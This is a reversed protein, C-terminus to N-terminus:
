ATRPELLVIPIVRPHARERFTSYGPYFADFQPWLREREAETALRARVERVEAGVQVTTEPNAMLNHFWAPNTPQGAKSAVVALSAGDRHYMLPSTRDAGSKAGRHDVLAVKADPWGPLNGGIRGGSRRYLAVHVKTSRRGLYIGRDNMAEAAALNFRANLSPAADPRGDTSAAGSGGPAAAGEEDGLASAMQLDAATAAGLAVAIAKGLRSRRRLLVAAIGVNTAARALLWPRRPRGWILGPGVVLDGLAILRADRAELAAVRGIRRPWLAMAVGIALSGVGVQRSRQLADQEDM